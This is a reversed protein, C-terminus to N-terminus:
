AIKRPVKIRTLNPLTLEKVEQPQDYEDVKPVLARAEVESPAAVIYTQWHGACDYGSYEERKVIWLKM